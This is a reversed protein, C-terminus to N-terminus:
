YAQPSKPPTTILVSCTALSSRTNILRKLTVCRSAVLQLLGPNKLRHFNSINVVICTSFSVHTLLSLLSSSHGEVDGGERSTSRFRPVLSGASFFDSQADWPHRHCFWRDLVSLRCTDVRRLKPSMACVNFYQGSFMCLKFFGPTLRVVIIM